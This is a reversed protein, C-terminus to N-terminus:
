GPAPRAVTIGRREAMRVLETANRVAWGGGDNNFYLQVPEDGPWLEEVRRLWTALVSRGYRPRPTAGGEHLRVYGWDATRWLPTIPRGLRDALCLAADREALLSRLEDTWWTSHRPEVAVRVRRPFADLCVALRDLDARMTPPLQLLVAALRGGLPALRELLLSVPPEPDRLRRVRTLYRSAKAAVAYGAPLQKAWGEVAAETPLRYFSSDVEVAGFREAYTHLWRPQPLGPPYLVGRWHAYQWGSTGVLLRM